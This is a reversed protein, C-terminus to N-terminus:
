HAANSKTAPSIGMELLIAEALDMSRRRDEILQKPKRSKYLEKADELEDISFHGARICACIEDCAADVEMGVLQMADM